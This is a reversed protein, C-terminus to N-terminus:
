NLDALEEPIHVHLTQHEWDLDRLYTESLPLLIEKGLLDLTLVINGSYDAVDAVRGDKGSREDHVRFGVLDSLDHCAEAEEHTLLSKELWVGCGVLREAQRLTDVYDFKVIYSNHNRVTLGDRAIFFPVPAGELFLFVPKDAHQELLGSGATIVVAGQLHHTKTIEGIKLCDERTIM